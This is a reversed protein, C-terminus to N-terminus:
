ILTRLREIAIQINHGGPTKIGDLPFWKAEGIGDDQISGLEETKAIFGYRFDHHWHHSEKKAQSPYVPGTIIQLPVRLDDSVNLHRGLKVGTEEFAERKATLWPGEEEKDWHGGPQQWNKSRLHYIFLIKKLDPSLIIADGAIHGRFNRRDDLKENKKIQDLLLGLQGIDDPFIKLYKQLVESLM